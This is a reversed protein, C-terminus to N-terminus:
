QKFQHPLSDAQKKRIILNKVYSPCIYQRWRQLPLLLFNMLFNQKLFIDM